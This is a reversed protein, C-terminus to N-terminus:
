PSQLSKRWAQARRPAARGGKRLWGQLHIPGTQPALPLPGWATGMGAPSVCRLTEHAGATHPTAALAGSGSLSPVGRGLELWGEPGMQGDRWVGGGAHCGLSTQPHSELSVPPQPGLATVGPAGSLEQQSCGIGLREWAPLAALVAWCQSGFVPWAPPPPWPQSVRSAHPRPVLNWLAPIGLTPVQPSLSRPHRGEHGGGAGAESPM